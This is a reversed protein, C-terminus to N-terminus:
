QTPRLSKRETEGLICRRHGVAGPVVIEVVVQGVQGRRRERRRPVLRDHGRLHQLGQIRDFAGGHHVAGEPPAPMVPNSM